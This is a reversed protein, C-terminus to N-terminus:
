KKAPGGSRIRSKGTGGGGPGRGSGGGPGRRQKSRGKGDESAEEEKIDFKSADDSDSDADNDEDKNSAREALGEAIADIIYNTIIAISQAADDNAPIAFDVKTPDSNTDVIGFTNINLRQAEKLAIHEHSIDVLFIASPIRNLASVGGLVKEMKDKERTLVLREKKTTSDLTGDSLMKEITQMKKISKRITSFNTLMGGLWRETVFPMNVRKAAEKVIEKAQKKTAVFLIKKGSKAMFRLAHAAEDLKEQTRNLDIIHIGKKETFIYPLMKPNWKRKLHGFHVGAELLAEQSLKQM